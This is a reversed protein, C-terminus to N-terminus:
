QSHQSVVASMSKVFELIKWSGLSTSTFRRRLSAMLQPVVRWFAKFYKSTESRIPCCDCSCESAPHDKLNAAGPVV